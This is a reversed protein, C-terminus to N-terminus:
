VRQKQPLSRGGGVKHRHLRPNAVLLRGGLGGEGGEAQERLRLAPFPTSM